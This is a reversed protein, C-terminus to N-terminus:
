EECGVAADGDTGIRPDPQSGAVPLAIEAGPTDLVQGPDAVPQAGAITVWAAPSGYAQTAMLDLRDSDRVRHGVVQTWARAPPLIPPVVHRRVSGDPEVLQAQPAGAYRSNQGIM